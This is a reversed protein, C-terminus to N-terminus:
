LGRLWLCERGQCERMDMPRVDITGHYSICHSTEGSRETWGERHSQSSWTALIRSCYEDDNVSEVLRVVVVGQLTLVSIIENTQTASQILQRGHAQKEEPSMYSHAMSACGSLGLVTIVLCALFAQYRCNANRWTLGPIRGLVGTM